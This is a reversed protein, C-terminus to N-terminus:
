RSSIHSLMSVVTVADEWTACEDVRRQWEKRDRIRLNDPCMPRDGDKELATLRATAWLYYGDMDIEVDGYWKMVRNSLQKYLSSPLVKKIQVDREGFAAYNSFSALFREVFSLRFLFRHDMSSCQLKKKMEIM